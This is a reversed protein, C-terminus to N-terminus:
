SYTKKQEVFVIALLFCIYRCILNSTIVFPLQIFTGLLNLISLAIVFVNMSIKLRKQTFIQRLLALNSVASAVFLLSLMVGVFQLQGCEFRSREVALLLDDSANDSNKSLVM